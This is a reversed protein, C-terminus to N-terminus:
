QCIPFAKSLFSDVFFPSPPPQPNKTEADKGKLYEYKIGIADCLGRIVDINLQRFDEFKNIKM